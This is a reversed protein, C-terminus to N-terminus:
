PTSKAGVSLPMGYYRWTGGTERADDAAVAESHTFRALDRPADVHTGALGGISIAWTPPTKIEFMRYM